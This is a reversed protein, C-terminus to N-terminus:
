YLNTATKTAAVGQADCYVVKWQSRTQIQYISPTTLQKTNPVQLKNQYIFVVFHSQQKVTHCILAVDDIDVLFSSM